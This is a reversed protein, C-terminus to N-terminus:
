LRKDEYVQFTKHCIFGTQKEFPTIYQLVSYWTESLMELVSVLITEIFNIRLVCPILKTNHILFM